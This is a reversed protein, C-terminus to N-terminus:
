TAIVVGNYFRVHKKWLTDDSTGFILMDDIHVETMNYTLGNLVHVSM